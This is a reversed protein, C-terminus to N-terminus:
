EGNERIQKLAWKAYIILKELDKEDEGKKRWNYKDINGRAFALREELTANKEMREFTDIGIRYQPPKEELSDETKNPTGWPYRTYVNTKYFNLDHTFGKEEKM